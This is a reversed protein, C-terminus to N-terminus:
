TCISLFFGRPRTRPKRVKEVPMEVIVEQKKTSKRQRKAKPQAVEVVPVEPFNVECTLPCAYEFSPAETSAKHAEVVQKSWEIQEATWDTANYPKYLDAAPKYINYYFAHLLIAGLGLIATAEISLTLFNQIATYM